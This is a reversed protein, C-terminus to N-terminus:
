PLTWRTGSRCPLCARLTSCRKRLLAVVNLPTDGEDTRAEAAEGAVAFVRAAGADGHECHYMATTGNDDPENADGGALLLALFFWPGTTGTGNWLPAM